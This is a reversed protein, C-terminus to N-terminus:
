LQQLVQDLLTVAQVADSLKVNENAGHARSNANGIGFGLVPLKLLRGFAYAPGAGASNLVYEVGNNGYVQKATKNVLQVFPHKIDSRFGPQGVLYKVKVDPFGNKVLQQRVLKPIRTPEQSPALRFDLKATALRPLVTKVGAEQYGATLGEINITPENALAQKPTKTLLPCSLGEAQATKAANFNLKEVFSSEKPTLATVDDYIGAIKIEGTSDDRLSALAKTLRWPASEAYAAKSSHLDANATTVTLEVCAIGKLGGTIALQGAANKAGGEWIVADAQLEKQHATTYKIVHSSGIEEEGEVYFKINVPLGGHEQYYKLLTLRFILEGKDDAVGRAFLTGDHVTPEFPDTDWQDLPEAPQTDYHNYFLVTQDHKGQFNAFVVPNGGQDTWKEVQDAGLQQFQQVLWDSTAHIGINQAAITKFRLLDSFDQWHNLLYEKLSETM